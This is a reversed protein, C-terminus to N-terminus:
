PTKILAADKLTKLTATLDGEIQEPPMEPFASVFLQVLEDESLPEELANWVAAALRDLHFIEGSNPWVLFLDGDMDSVTVGTARILTNNM